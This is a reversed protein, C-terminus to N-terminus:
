FLCGNNGQVANVSQNTRIVSLSVALQTEVSSKNRKERRYQSPTNVARYFNFRLIFM